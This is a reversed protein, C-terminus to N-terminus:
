QFLFKIDGEQDTRRIQIGYQELKALTEQHPHGYTNDKGSSIVAVEPHVARLFAPASSNKSGHHAVKLVDSALLAGSEM